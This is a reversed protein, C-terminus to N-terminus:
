FCFRFVSSEKKHSIFKQKFEEPTMKFRKLPLNKLYDNNNSEPEPEIDVINVIELSFLILIYM